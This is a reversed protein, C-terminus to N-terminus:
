KRAAEWADERSYRGGDPISVSWEEYTEYKPKKQMASEIIKQHIKLEVIANHVDCGNELWAIVPGLYPFGRRGEQIALKETEKENM